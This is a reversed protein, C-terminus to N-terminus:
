RSVLIVEGYYIYIGYRGSLTYLVNSKVDEVEEQTLCDYSYINIETGEITGVWEFKNYKKHFEEKQEQTKFVNVSFDGDGYGNPLCIRCDKTGIMITGGDCSYKKM